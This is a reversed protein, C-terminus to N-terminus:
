PQTMLVLRNPPYVNLMDILPKTAALRREKLERDLASFERWADEADADRERAKARELKAWATKLPAEFTRDLMAIQEQVIERMKLVDPHEHNFPPFDM